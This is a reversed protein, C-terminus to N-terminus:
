AEGSDKLVLWSLHFTKIKGKCYTLKLQIVIVHVMCSFWMKFGNVSVEKM